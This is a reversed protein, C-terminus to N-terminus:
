KLPWLSSVIGNTFTFNKADVDVFGGNPYRDRVEDLVKNSGWYPHVMGPVPYGVVAAVVFGNVEIAAANPDELIVDYVVDTTQTVEANPYYKAKIWEKGDYVPHSGTVGNYLTIPNGHNLNSIRIIWKVKGDELIMDPKLNKMLITSYDDLIIEADPGICGDDSSSTYSYTDVYQFTKQVVAASAASVVAQQIGQTMFSVFKVGSPISAIEGFIENYEKTRYHKLSPDFANGPIRYKHCHLICLLYFKGFTNWNDKEFSYSIRGHAPLGTTDTELDHSYTTSTRAHVERLMTVLDAMKYKASSGRIQPELIEVFKQRTTEDLDNLVVQKMDTMAWIFVPVMYGPLSTINEIYSITHKQNNGITRLLDTSVDKSFAILHLQTNVFKKVAEETSDTPDGDTFVFYKSTEGHNTFVKNLALGLFTQGEPRIKDLERESEVSTQSENTPIKTTAESFTYISCKIRLKKCFALTVKAMHVALEIRLPAGQQTGSDLQMSGSVDILLVVQQDPVARVSSVAELVIPAPVPGVPDQIENNLRTLFPRPHLAGRCLPCKPLYQQTIHNMCETCVTHGESACVNYCNREIVDDNYANFCVPCAM